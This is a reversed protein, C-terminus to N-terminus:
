GDRNARCARCLGSGNDTDVMVWGLNHAQAVSSVMILFRCGTCRLSLAARRQGEQSDDHEGEHRTRDRTHDALIM